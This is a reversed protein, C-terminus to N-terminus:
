PKALQKNQSNYANSFDTENVPLLSALQASKFFLSRNSNEVSLRNEYDTGSTRELSCNKIQWYSGKNVGGPIWTFVQRRLRDRLFNDNAAYFYETKKIGFDPFLKIKIVTENHPEVIWKGNTLTKENKWTFTNRRYSDYNFYDFGAYLNEQYRTNFVIFYKANNQPIFKWYADKPISRNRCTFVYRRQPDFFRNEDAFLYENNRINMLCVVNWLLNKVYDPLDSQLQIFVNKYEETIESNNLMNLHQKIGYGLRLMEPTYLQNNQKMEQMLAKYAVALQELSLMGDRIFDYLNNFNILSRNYAFQIIREIESSQWNTNAIRYFKSKANKLHGKKIAAICGLILNEHNNVNNPNQRERIQTPMKKALADSLANLEPIIPTFRANLHQLSIIINEIDTSQKVSVGQKIQEVLQFLRSLKTAVEDKITLMTANDLGRTRNEVEEVVLKIQQIVHEIDINQRFIRSGPNSREFRRQKKTTNTKKILTLNSNIGEDLLNLGTYVGFKSITDIFGDVNSTNANHQEIFKNKAKEILFANSFLAQGGFLGIIMKGIHM